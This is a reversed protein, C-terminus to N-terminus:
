NKKTLKPARTAAVPVDKAKTGYAEGIIRKLSEFGAGAETPMWDPASEVEAQQKAAAAQASTKKAEKVKAARQKYRQSQGTAVSVPQMADPAGFGPIDIHWNRSLHLKLDKPELTDSGRHRALMCAFNTVTETFDDAIELLAEEVEPDLTYRPDIQKVIRALEERQVLSGNFAGDISPVSQVPHAGSSFQMGQRPAGAAAAAPAASVTPAPPAPPAIRAQAQAYHAAPPMPVHGSAAAAAAAAAAAGTTPNARVHAAAAAAIGGGHGVAAPQVQGQVAAFNHQLPQGAGAGAGGPPDGGPQM